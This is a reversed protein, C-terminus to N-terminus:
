DSSDKLRKAWRELRPSSLVGQPIHRYGLRLLPNFVHDVYPPNTVVRGGWRLKFLSASYRRDIEDPHGSLVAEAVRAELGGFDVYRYGQARDWKIAEWEVLESAFLRPNEGSWARALHCSTDGFPIVLVAADPEGDHDAIFLEIHGRASLGRWMEAYYAAPRPRYGLRRGHAEELSTFVPLDEDTGRRVTVGRREAIRINRRRSPSMAALIGDLEPGVDVILRAPHYIHLADLVGRRFGSRELPAVDGEHLPPQVALYAYAGRGGLAMLEDIVLRLLDERGTDAVPGGVVFAAHAGHRVERMEAQAGAVVLDGQRVVIRLSRWGIVSRACAWGSSQTYLERGQRDLFDDWEEDAIADSVAISLDGISRISPIGNRTASRGM